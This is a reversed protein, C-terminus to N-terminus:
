TDYKIYYIRNQDRDLIVLTFNYSNREFIHSDDSPDFKDQFRDEFYYYGNKIAPILPSEKKEDIILPLNQEMGYVARSLNETLPFENWKDTMNRVVKSCEEKTMQLEVFTQGDGLFNDHSDSERLVKCFSIDIGMFNSIGTKIDKGNTHELLVTKVEKPIASIILVILFAMLFCLLFMGNYKKGVIKEKM